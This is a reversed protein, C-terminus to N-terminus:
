NKETGEEENEEKSQPLFDTTAKKLTDVFAKYKPHDKMMLVGLARGLQSITMDFQVREDEYLQGAVLCAYGVIKIANIHGGYIGPIIEFPNDYFEQIVGLANFDFTLTRERVEEGEKHPMEIVVKYVDADKFDNARM